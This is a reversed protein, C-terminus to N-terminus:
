SARPLPRMARQSRSRVEWDCVLTVDAVGVSGKRRMRDLYDSKLAQEASAMARASDRM